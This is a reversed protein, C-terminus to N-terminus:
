LLYAAPGISFSFGAFPELQLRTRGNAPFDPHGVGLTTSHVRRQGGGREGRVTERVHHQERQRDRSHHQQDAKTTSMAPCRRPDRERLHESSNLQRHREAEQDEPEDRGQEVHM